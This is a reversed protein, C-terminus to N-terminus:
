EGVNASKKKFLPRLSVAIRPFFVPIITAFTNFVPLAVGIVIVLFVVATRVAMSSQVIKKARDEDVEVAKQVTLGMFFFNAIVALASLLNGLLVTYDWLNALLFVVQMIISLAGTVLAIYKTEDYITKDVKVM